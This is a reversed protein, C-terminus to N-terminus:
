DLRPLPVDPRHGLDADSEARVYRALMDAWTWGPRGWGDAATARSWVAGNIAGSGGVVRGRPVTAVCGPRLEVPHDWNADHGPTAPALSAVDRIEPAWGTTGAELLLVKRHQGLRGALACGASGAGVVLVDFEEGSVVALM